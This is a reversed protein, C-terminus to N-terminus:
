RFEFIFEGASVEVTQTVPQDRGLNHSLDPGIGPRDAWNESWVVNFRLERQSRGGPFPGAGNRSKPPAVWTKGDIIKSRNQVEGGGGAVFSPAPRPSVGLANTGTIGAACRPRQVGCPPEAQNLKM